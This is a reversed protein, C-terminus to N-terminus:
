PVCHCRGGNALGQAVPFLLTARVGVFLHHLHSNAAGAAAHAHNMKVSMFPNFSTEVLPTNLTKDLHSSADLLDYSVWLGVQGVPNNKRKSSINMAFRTGVEALVQVQHQYTVSGSSSVPINNFFGHDPMSQFDDYYRDYYDGATQMQAKIRSKATLTRHYRVGALAYVWRGGYGLMVPISLNFQTVSERRNTLDGKYLYAVGRYDTMPQEVSWDDVKQQPVQIGMTLGTQLLLHSYQFQYVASLEGGGGFLPQTYSLKELAFAMDAALGVGVYHQAQLSLVAFCLISIILRKM